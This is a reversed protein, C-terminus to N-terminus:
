YADVGLEWNVQPNPAPEPHSISRAYDEIFRMSLSSWGTQHSAGCGRGTEGHFYEHFLALDRWHPDDAYRSEGGHCPRRGASDRLFLSALRRSLDRSVQQLNVRNGSGTPCEVTLGDGYFHHYRELAEVLLYNLPLWVPGRWNSNGGFLGTMSEGPAYHMQYEDGNYRLVFPHAEHIRSV